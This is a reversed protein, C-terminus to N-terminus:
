DTSNSKEPEDQLSEFSRPRVLPGSGRLAAKVSAAACELDEPSAAYVAAVMQDRNRKKIELVRLYEKEERSPEVKNM